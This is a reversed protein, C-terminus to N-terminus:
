APPFVRANWQVYNIWVQRRLPLARTVFAGTVDRVDDFKANKISSSAPSLRLRASRCVYSVIHVIDPISAEDDIRGFVTLRRCM